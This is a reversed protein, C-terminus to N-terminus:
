LINDLNANFIRRSRKYLYHTQSTVATVHEVRQGGCIAGNVQLYTVNNTYWHVPRRNTYM